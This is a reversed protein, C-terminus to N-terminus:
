QDIWCAYGKGITDGGEPSLTQGDYTIAHVLKLDNWITLEFKLKSPDFPTDTVLTEFPFGGKEFSQGYVVSKGTTDEDDLPDHVSGIMDETMEIEAVTENTKADDVVLVNGIEFEVTNLHDIDDVEWWEPLQYKEPISGDANKEDHDWSWMYESFTDAGKEVWYEAVDNPITGITHEGGYRSGWIHYEFKMIMETEKPDRSFVESVTQEPNTIM